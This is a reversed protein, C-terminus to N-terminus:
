SKCQSLNDEGGISCSRQWKSPWDPSTHLSELLLSPKESIPFCSLPFTDAVKKTNSHLVNLLSIPAVGKHHQERFALMNESFKMWLRGNPLVSTRLRVLFCYVSNTQRDVSCCLHWCFLVLTLLVACTDVSCCLHWCFLVLTLPVACTDVSCCLHWCFLVLTLLVACTGVFCCLHWCSFLSTGGLVSM